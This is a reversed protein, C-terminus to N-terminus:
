DWLDEYMAVNENHEELTKAFALDGTEPDATCFYLYEQALYEEDPYLAAEIAKQGPNSVPGIPIGTYFYTNYPSDINKEDESYVFKKEGTVYRLTACSQLPIDEALRNHFVASVKKGDEPLSEWEIMSALAVVDDVTLGLDEARQEYVITFIDDFRNLLKTIVDVPEADAYVEYTDPFLYGELLYRRQSLDETDVLAAIYEYDGFAEPDNCLELFTEKEDDDFVGKSVLTDAMDRATMGETLTVTIIERGGDGQILLEVIEEMTMGPSLEYTGAVLSSSLDNFDVYLQFVLKNRVIGEEYLLTAITSLSSGTKVEITKTEASGADVPAFYNGEIYNYATIGIFIVLAASIALILLPRIIRWAVTAVTVEKISGREECPELPEKGSGDIAFYKTEGSATDDPAGSVPAFSKTADSADSDEFGRKNKDDNDTM